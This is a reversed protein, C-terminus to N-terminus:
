NNPVPVVKVNRSTPTVGNRDVLYAMRRTVVLKATPTGANQWGEVVVYVTFTDSRTTILNSLRNVVLNTEDFENAVGSGGSPFLNGQSVGTTGPFRGSGSSGISNNNWANQVGSKTYPDTQGSTTGLEDFVRNLDYITKFPGFQNRDRVIAMAANITNPTDVLAPNANTLVLPLTALVQWPATNINILGQVSETNEADTNAASSAATVTNSINSSLSSDSNAVPSPYPPITLPSPNANPYMSPDTNPLYDDRPNQVTLYDFLHTTWSYPKWMTYNVLISSGAPYITTGPVYTLTLTGPTSVSYSSVTAAWTNPLGPETITLYYGAWSGQSNLSGSPVKLFSDTLPGAAGPTLTGTTGAIQTTGLTVTGTHTYLDWDSAPTFRGIQESAEGNTSANPMDDSPDTDDAFAADMTPSNIEIISPTASSSVATRIQYGGIYPVTLIDGNRAFGGFPFMNTGTPKNAGPWYQNTLQLNFATPYTATTNYTGFYGNAAPNQTAWTTVSTGPGPDATETSTVSNYLPVTFVNAGSGSITGNSVYTGQQHGVNTTGISGNYMGPYVYYNGAPAAAPPIYPEVNTSPSTNVQNPNNTNRAYYWETAQTEGTTGPTLNSFDFSDVPVYDNLPNNNNQPIPAGDNWVYSGDTQSVPVATPTASGAAANCPLGSASRRRMLVMENGIIEHLNPVFYTTFAGNPLLGGAPLSTGINGTQAPLGAVWPRYNANTSDGGSPNLNELLLFGYPAISPVGYGSNNTINYPDFPFRNGTGIIPVPNFNGALGANAGNISVANATRNICAIQWSADSGSALTPAVATPWSAKDTDLTSATPELNIQTPTPNYLLIAVYGNANQLPTGGTGLPTGAQSVGDATTDTSVFIKVIFPQPQNGYVVANVNQPTPVGNTTAQSYVTLPVQRAIVTRLGSGAATSVIPNADPSRLNETNAAAIAARLLLEQYSDFSYLPTAASPANNPRISSRFMLQPDQPGGTTAGLFSGSPTASQAAFQSGAYVQALGNSYLFSPTFMLAVTPTTPPLFTGGFPTTQAGDSGATMVNWYARYLEPFSATNVNAKTAIASSQPQWVVWYQTGASAVVTPYNTASATNATVCRYFHCVDSAATGDTQNLTTAGLSTDGNVYVYDGANYAQGITWATPRAWYVTGGTDFAEVAVGEPPQNVNSNRCFFVGSFMGATAASSNAPFIPTGGVATATGGSFTVCDDSVYQYSTGVIPTATHVYTVNPQWRGRDGYPAMAASAVSPFLASASKVPAAVSVGNDTVLFPRLNPRYRQKRPGLLQDELFVNLNTTPPTNAAATNLTSFGPNSTKDTLPGYDFSDAYWQDIIDAAPYVSTPVPFNRWPATGYIATPHGEIANSAMTASSTNNALINAPSNPANMFASFPLAEEITSLLMTPPVPITISPPFATSPYNTPNILGFHYTLAAEDADGFARYRPYTSTTAVPNNYIYGPNNTRRGLQHYLADGMTQFAFDTHTNGQDDIALPMDPDTSSPTVNQFTVQYPFAQQTLGWLGFRIANLGQPVIPYDTQPTTQDLFSSKGNEAPPYALAAAPANYYDFSLDRYDLWEALGVASPFYSSFLGGAATPPSIIQGGVFNYDYQNDWATNVNIASNNDIIRVGAYYTLGDSYVGPLRFLGCDAIGDGDADGALVQANNTVVGKADIVSATFSPFYNSITGPTSTFNSFNPQLNNRLTYYYPPTGGSVFATGSLPLIPSEFAPVGGVNSSGLPATIADWQPLLANPNPPGDPARDALWTDGSGTGLRDPSDYNTYGSTTGVNKYQYQNTTPNFNFLGGVIQSVAMDRVGDLLTDINTNAIDQGSTITDVRSSSLYTTGLIAMLLLLVVVMLLVSAKRRAPKLISATTLQSNDTTLLSKWMKSLVPFRFNFVAQRMKSVVSLQGSVAKEESVVPLQGSIVKKESM